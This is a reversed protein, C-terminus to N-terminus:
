PHIRSLFVSNGNELSCFMSSLEYIVRTAVLGVDEM